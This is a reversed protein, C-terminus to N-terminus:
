NYVYIVSFYNLIVHIHIHNHDLLFSRNLKRLKSSSNLIGNEQLTICQCFGRLVMLIM